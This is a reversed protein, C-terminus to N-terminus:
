WWLHPLLVAWMEGIERYYERKDEIEWYDFDIKSFDIIADMLKNILGRESYEKGKYIVPHNDLDIIGEARDVYMRLHEYAWLYFTFDLNWTERDDFGYKIKQRWWRPRWPFERFFPKKKQIEKLYYHM